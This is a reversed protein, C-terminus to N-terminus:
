NGVKSMEDASSEISADSFRINRVWLWLLRRVLLFLRVTDCRGMQVAATLDASHSSLDLKLPRSQCREM